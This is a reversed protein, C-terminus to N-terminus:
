NKFVQIDPWLVPDEQPETFFHIPLFFCVPWHPGFVSRIKQRLTRTDKIELSKRLFVKEFSTVGWSILRTHAYIFLGALGDFYVMFSVATVTLSIHLPLYGLLSRMLAVPFIVDVYAMEQWLFSWIYPLGYLTGYVAGSFAWVLFVYFFRHNRYGVCSGAFYCHHDRKLVCTKCLPCHHCRPPRARGCPYCPVWSWYPYSKTMVEGDTTITPTPCTLASGLKAAQAMTRNELGGNGTQTQEDDNQISFSSLYPTRSSLQTDGLPPFDRTNQVPKLLDEISRKNIQSNRRNMAANALDVEQKLDLAGQRIIAGAPVLSNSTQDSYTGRNPPSFSNDNKMNEAFKGDQNNEPLDSVVPMLKMDSTDNTQRLTLLLNDTNSKVAEREHPPPGHLRIYRTYTSDVYRIGLWNVMMELCLLSIVCRHLVMAQNDGAFVLPVMHFVGLYFGVFVTFLYMPIAIYDVLEPALPSSFLKPKPKKMGKEYHAKLKSRLSERPPSPNPDVDSRDMTVDCPQEDVTPMEVHEMLDAM